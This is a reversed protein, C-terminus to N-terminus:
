KLEMYIGRMKKSDSIQPFFELGSPSFHLRRYPAEALAQRGEAVVDLGAAVGELLGNVALGDRETVYKKKGGKERCGFM